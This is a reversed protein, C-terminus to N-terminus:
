VFDADQGNATAIIGLCDLKSLYAMDPSLAAVEAESEFVAMYDRARLVEKPKSGLGKLLEDPCDCPAAPRSPFDLEVLDGRRRANLVGSRSQFKIVEWEYGLESFLLFAPALTAHGCLDVEVTPTFWRIDYSEEKKILFATEALNNEAAINQLLTDSPWQQLLCVGAPNGGFMRDTFADIQYYPVRM